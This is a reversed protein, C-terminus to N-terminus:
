TQALERAEAFEWAPYTPSQGTVALVRATGLADIAMKLLFTSDVGGSFAVVVSKMGGLIEKLRSLKEARKAM